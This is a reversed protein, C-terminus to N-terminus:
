STHIKHGSRVLVRDQLMAVGKIVAVQQRSTLFDDGIDPGGVFGCDFYLGALDAQMMPQGNMARARISCFVAADGADNAIDIQIDHLFNACPIIRNYRPPPRLLWKISKAGGRAAKSASLRDSYSSIRGLSAATVILSVFFSM